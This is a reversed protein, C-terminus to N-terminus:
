LMNLMSCSETSLPCTQQWALVLPEGAAFCEVTSHATCTDIRYATSDGTGVKNSYLMPPALLLSALDRAM